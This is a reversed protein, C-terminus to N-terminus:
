IEWDNEQTHWQTYSHVTFDQFRQSAESIEALMVYSSQYINEAHNLFCTHINVANHNHMCIVFAVAEM